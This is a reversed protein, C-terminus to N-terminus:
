PAQHNLVVGLQQPATLDKLGFHGYPASAFAIEGTQDALRSTLQGYVLDGYGIVEDVSSWLSFRFAGEYGTQALLDDLFASRGVVQTGALMGPYLGNQADCTPTTPGTMFCAVLGLNAGAIAVFADVQGTLAPGVTYAGGDTPDNGQGGLVVKRALTVGMSHAVIDVKAAGTYALVAAVFHRLQMINNRSHFQQAALTADAPGWTTAYLEAGTYGHQLFYARSATWGTQGTATGLAKDANGHIFIVPDHTLPQGSSARGGFSGGDLDDRALGAVDEGHAALWARFDVTLGHPEVVDAAFVDAPAVEGAPADLSAAEAADALADGANDALSADAAADVAAAADTGPAAAAPSGCAALAALLPVLALAASKM